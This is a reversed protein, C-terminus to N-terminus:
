WFKKEDACCRCRTSFYESFNNKTLGKYKDALAPCNLQIVKSLVTGKEELAIVAREDRELKTVIQQLKKRGAKNAFQKLATIRGSPAQEFLKDKSLRITIRKGEGLKNFHGCSLGKKNSMHRTGNELNLYLVQKALRNYGTRQKYFVKRNKYLKRWADNVYIIKPKHYVKKNFEFLLSYYGKDSKLSLESRGEPIDNKTLTRYIHGLSDRSKRKGFLWYDDNDESYSSINIKKNENANMVVNWHLNSPLSKTQGSKAKIRGTQIPGINNVTVDTYIEGEDTISDTSNHVTIKKAAISFESFGEETTEIKEDVADFFHMILGATFSITAPILNSAIDHCASDTLDGDWQRELDWSWIDFLNFHRWHFPKDKRTGDVDDSDYQVSIQALEKFYDFVEWERKYSALDDSAINWIGPLALEYKYTNSGSLNSLLGEIVKGTYCEYQDDDISFDNITDNDFIKNLKLKKLLDVVFGIGAHPDGHMHAPTGVDALLHLVRGLNLYAREKEGNQYQKILVNWYEKARAPASRFQDLTTTGKKCIATIPTAILEYIESRIETFFEGYIKGGIAEALVDCIYDLDIVLGKNENLSDSWFHEMWHQYKGPAGTQMAAKVLPDSINPESIGSRIKPQDELYAGLMVLDLYTEQKLGGDFESTIGFENKISEWANKNIPSNLLKMSMEGLLQTAAKVIVYHVKTNM